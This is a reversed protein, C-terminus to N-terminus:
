ETVFLLSATAESELVKMDAREEAGAGGCAWAFPGGGGVELAAVDAAAAFCAVAVVIQFKKM